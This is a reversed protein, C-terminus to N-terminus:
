QTDQTQEWEKALEDLLDFMETDDVIVDEEEIDAM